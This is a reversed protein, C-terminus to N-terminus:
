LERRATGLLHCSNTHASTRDTPRRDPTGYTPVNVREGPRTGAPGRSSQAVDAASDQAVTALRGNDGLRLPLTLHFM